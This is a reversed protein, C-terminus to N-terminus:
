APAPLTGYPAHGPPERDACQGPAQLLLTRAVDGPVTDFHRVGAGDMLADCAILVAPAVAASPAPLHSRGPVGNAPTLGILGAPVVLVGGPEGGPLAQGPLLTAAPRLLGAGRGM